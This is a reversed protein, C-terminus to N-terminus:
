AQVMELYRSRRNESLSLIDAESWGYASALTHIDFLLRSVHAEIKTWVFSVLDLTEKGDKGCGPCPVSVRIEALPDAMSMTEGIESLEEESWEGPASPEVLCSEVIRLAGTTPDTEDAAAALDRSTPLRLIWGNVTVPENADEGGSTREGALMDADIEFELKEGCNPCATWARLHRGFCQSYFNTLAQNRRGLPWGALGEYSADPFARALILLARDIPHRRCGSEWLDLLEAESLTRM